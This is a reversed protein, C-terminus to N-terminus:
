ALRFWATKLFAPEEKSIPFDPPQAVYHEQLIRRKSTTLSRRVVALFDEPAWKVANSSAFLTGGPKLVEVAEAALKGFDREARFLGGEKSQSFTPPDLLVVDFRRDKKRFRKLWDFVDGYIFDHAAPDLKNLIFNRRGWDLYKRSLDLSTVRAGALAACVSFACTYAFTNLVEAGGLGGPRVVFEPAVYNKLLRRRNDRQDLFIGCSYGETFSVEYTVGNEQINFQERAARGLAKQPSVEEKKGRVHSTTIKHYAGGRLLWTDLLERQAASIEAPSQSLLFEGFRDVNWGPFDDSAGHIWRFANTDGTPEIFNRRLYWAPAVFSAPATVKLVAGTAPHRLHIKAAHLCLRRYPAGGYLADGRIPFGNESAHVRIQHTRGTRPRATVTFVGEKESIVEFETEADAGSLGGRESAYREGIRKLHSKIGFRGQPPKGCTQLTYEKHIDGAEFQQTLSRNAEKTKSFVLVGSTEKDLRHIIALSAWRPERNRLWEYIGEGAYLSPSHTNWGPPKNVVLLHEDEFLILSSPTESVPEGSIGPARGPM